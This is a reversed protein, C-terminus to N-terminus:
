RNGVAGSFGYVANSTRWEHMTGFLADRKREDSGNGAAAHERGIQVVRKTRQLVIGIVDARDVDPLGERIRLRREVCEVYRVYKM